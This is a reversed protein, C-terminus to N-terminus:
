ALLLISSEVREVFLLNETFLQEIFLQKETSKKYFFIMWRVMFKKLFTMQCILLKIAQIKLSNHIWCITIWHIKRAGLSNFKLTKVSLDEYLWFQGLKNNINLELIFFAKEKLTYAFYDWNTM